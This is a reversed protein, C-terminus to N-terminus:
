DGNQPPFLYFNPHIGESYEQRQRETHRREPL